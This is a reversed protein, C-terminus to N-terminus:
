PSRLMDNGNGLEPFKYKLARRLRIEAVQILALAQLYGAKALDSESAHPPKNPMLAMSERALRGALRIIDEASALYHADYAAKTNGGRGPLNIIEATM